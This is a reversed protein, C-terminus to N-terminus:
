FDIGIKFNIIRFTKPEKLPLRSLKLLTSIINEKEGSSLFSRITLGTVTECSIYYAKRDPFRTKLQDLLVEKVFFTKGSGWDGDILVAQKLREEGVYELIQKIILEEKM